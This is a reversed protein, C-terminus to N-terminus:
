IASDLVEEGPLDKTTRITELIDSHNIDLYEFLEHGFDLISDVPINDLFGYILAYLIVVQKEVVLPAYLKQRLIEVARRGRNLKAQMTADLDSDFQTFVGSERYNALDLRLTGVIKKM